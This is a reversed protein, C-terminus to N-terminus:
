GRSDLRAARATRAPYGSRSGGRGPAAEPVADRREAARPQRDQDGAGLRGTHAVFAVAMPLTLREGLVLIGLGVAVAPNVYTIVSARAPGAEAILAFFGLFALATCVM